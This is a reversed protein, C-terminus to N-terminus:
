GSGSTLSPTIACASCVPSVPRRSCWPMCCQGHLPVASAQETSTSSRASSSAPRIVSVSALLM